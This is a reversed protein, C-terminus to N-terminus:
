IYYTINNGINMINDREADYFLWDYFLALKANSAAVNSQLLCFWICGGFFICLLLSIRFRNISVGNNKEVIQVCCHYLVIMVCNQNQLLVDVDYLRVREDYCCLM